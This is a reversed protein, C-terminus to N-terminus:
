EQGAEASDSNLDGQHFGISPNGTMREFATFCDGAESPEWIGLVTEGRLIVWSEDSYVALTIAWQGCGCCLVALGHGKLKEMNRGHCGTARRSEDRSPRDSPVSTADWQAVM